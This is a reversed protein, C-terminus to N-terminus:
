PILMSALSINGISLYPAYDKLLEIGIKEESNSKANSKYLCRIFVLQFFQQSFFIPAILLPQPSWFSLNADHVEKMNPTSLIGYIQAAFSIALSLSVLWCAIPATIAM